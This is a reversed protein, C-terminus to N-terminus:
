SPAHGSALAQAIAVPLAGFPVLIAAWLGLVGAVNLSAFRAALRALSLREHPQPSAEQVPALRTAALYATLVLLLLPIMSNPDTGLGGFLGLDQVLVWDTLCAVATLVVVPRLLARRNSVLGLGIVALTTVALANVLFGHNATFAAFSGVIRGLPAPQSTRGMAAAMRALPGSGRWFGRGPWAQLVAMGAFFLGLGAFLRRGLAPQRWTRDPLALLLGAACYLLAAGPAGTLVSASPALLGGFAEGFVWILASWCASVLGGLRSWAGGPTTLLWIGIGFQIWVAATSAQVPHHTWASAAWAALTRVWGPSSAAAPVIVRGALGSPMGPQVQLAGDVLWLAGFGYRVLKRASPEARGPDAVAGGAEANRRVAWGRRPGALDPRWERLVMWAATLATLILLASLEQRVLAAMFAAVLAQHGTVPTFM